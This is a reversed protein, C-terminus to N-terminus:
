PCGTDVRRFKTFYSHAHWPDPEARYAVHAYGYPIGRENCLRPTVYDYSWNGSHTATIQYESGAAYCCGNAIFRQHAGIEVMSQVRAGAGIGKTFHEIKLHIPVSGENDIAILGNHYNIEAAAPLAMLAFAAVLTLVANRLM